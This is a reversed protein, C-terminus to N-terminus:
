SYDYVTGFNEATGSFSALWWSVGVPVHYKLTFRASADIGVDGIKLPMSSVLKIGVVSFSDTITVNFADNLSTNTVNCHVTLKRQQYDRYSEWYVEAAAIMLDPRGQSAVVTLSGTG